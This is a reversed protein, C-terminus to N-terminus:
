KPLPAGGKIWTEVLGLAEPSVGGAPMQPFGQGKLRLVLESDLRGPVVYADRGGSRAAVLRKANGVADCKLLALGGAFGPGAGHCSVCTTDIVEREVRSFSDTRKALDACRMQEEPGVVPKKPPVPKMPAGNGASPDYFLRLVDGNKDETVFISGDRAVMVDVPAGQPDNGDASKEWHRLVDLPEALGPVGQADVPVMVLRHGYERYGHYTVLLNNSYAAPFMKGTYFAMGLPAVHGPLLMAPNRYKSCDARGRYEPNVVGNDICYPWGYHAGEVIVNLEEHPLEGEQSALSADIHDISDRSNEGQILLNSAPHVAMAMSNRLGKAYTKFATGLHNPGSLTYKRISGRPSGAEAEPCPLPYGAPPKANAGLECVDTASGLNVYMTWPDRTDFVFKKLPHRGDNALGTIVPTIRPQKYANPGAFPGTKPLTKSPDALLTAEYPNFRYIVDPTGVYVLGDPGVAIGSPKDIAANVKTKDYTKDAKRRLLWVGGRSDAWGGMEAVVLDGTPLEAIGRAYTFGDAVVGVCVGAPAAINRLRPLGDCQGQTTYAGAGQGGSDREDFADDGPAGCGPAAWMAFGATTAM